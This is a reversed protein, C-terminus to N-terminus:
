VSKQQENTARAKNSIRNYAWGLVRALSSGSQFMDQAIRNTEWATYEDVKQVMSLNHISRSIFCQRRMRLMLRDEGETKRPHETVKQM